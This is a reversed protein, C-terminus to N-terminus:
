SIYAHHNTREQELTAGLNETILQQSKNSKCSACYLRSLVAPGQVRFILLVM